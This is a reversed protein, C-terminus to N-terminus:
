DNMFTKMSKLTPCDTNSHQWECDGCMECNGCLWDCARKILTDIVSEKIEAPVIEFHVNKGDARYRARCEYPCQRLSQGFLCKDCCNKGFLKTEKCQVTFTENVNLEKKKTENM